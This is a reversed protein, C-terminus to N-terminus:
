GNLYKKYKEDYMKDREEKYDIKRKTKFVGYLSLVEPSINEFNENLNSNSKRRKKRDTVTKLYSEIMGSLSQGQAKAYNKADEILEKDSISLTLKNAM